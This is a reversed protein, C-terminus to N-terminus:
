RRTTDGNGKRDRERRLASAFSRTQPSYHTELSSLNAQLYCVLFVDSPENFFSGRSLARIIPSPHQPEEEFWDPDLEDPMGRNRLQAQMDQRWRFRITERPPMGILLSSAFHAATAFIPALTNVDAFKSLYDSWAAEVVSSYGHSELEEFVIAYGSLELLDVLPDITFVAQALPEAAQPDQKARSQALFCMAFCKPYLDEFLRSNGQAMAFYCEDCTIAYCHGFYDPLLPPPPVKALDPACSAFTSIIKDRSAKLHEKSLDWDITPWPFDKVTHLQSLEEHCKRMEPLYHLLKEFAEIGKQLIQAAIVSRGTQHMESAIPLFAEELLASLTKLADALFHAFAEGVMQDIYWTPSILQGEVRLEFDLRPALWELRQLVSQPVVCQYITKSNKWSIRSVNRRVADVKLQALAKYFGVLLSVVGYGRLEAVSLYFRFDEPMARLNASLSTDQPARSLPLKLEQLLLLAEDLFLSEALYGVTEGLATGLSNAGEFDGRQGLDHLGRGLTQCLEREIWLPDPVQDPQIATGTQLSLLLESSSVVSLRKFQPSREFWLSTTPIGAKKPAYWRLLSLTEFGARRLANTGQGASGILKLLQKYTRLAESARQQYHRQFAPDRWMSGRPSASRIQNTLTRQLEPTLQGPDFFRLVYLALVPFCLISALALLSVLLLQFVGPSIGLSRAVLLVTCVSALLVLAGLYINAVKARLLVQRVDDPVRAYVTGAVLSVAALYLGLLVGSMALLGALTAEFTSTNVNSEVTRLVGRAYGGRGMSWHDAVIVALSVIMAVLFSGAVSRLLSFGARFSESGEHVSRARYFFFRRIRFASSRLRNRFNWYHPSQQWEHLRLIPFRVWLRPHSKTRDDSNTM